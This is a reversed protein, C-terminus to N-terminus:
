LMTSNLCFDVYGWPPLRLRRLRRRHFDSSLLESVGKGGGAGTGSLMNVPGGDHVAHCEHIM